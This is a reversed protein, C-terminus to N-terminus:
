FNVIEIDEGNYGPSTCGTLNITLFCVAAIVVAAILIGMVKGLHKKPKKVLTNDKELAAGCGTCIEGDDPNIKGCKPCFM